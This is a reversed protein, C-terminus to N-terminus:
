PLKGLHPTGLGARMPVALGGCGLASAHDLGPVSPPPAPSPHAPPPPLDKAAVSTGNGEWPVKERKRPGQAKHSM